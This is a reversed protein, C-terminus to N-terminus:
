NRKNLHWLQKGIHKARQFSEMWHQRYKSNELTTVNEKTFALLAQDEIFVLPFCVTKPLLSVFGAVLSDLQNYY